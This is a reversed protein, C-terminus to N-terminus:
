INMIPSVLYDNLFFEEYKYLGFHEVMDGNLSGGSFIKRLIEENNDFYYKFIAMVSKIYKKELVSLVGPIENFKRKVILDVIKFLINDIKSFGIMNFCSSTVLNGDFVGLIKIPLLKKNHIVNKEKFRKSIKIHYLNMEDSHKLLKN